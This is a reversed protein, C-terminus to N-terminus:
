GNTWYRKESDIGETKRMISVGYLGMLRLYEFEYKGNKILEQIYHWAEEAPGATDHAVWLGGSKLQPYMIDLEKLVHETDHNGDQFIFDFKIDILEGPLDMSDMNIITAPLEAKAMDNTVKETQAIDIGYYRNGAMGYRTANDKLANAIYYGTYGEAHGIELAQEYGLARIIFYLMPGYFPITSNVITFHHHHIYEMLPAPYDRFYDIDKQHTIM